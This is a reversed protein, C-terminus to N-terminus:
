GKKKLLKIFDNNKLINIYTILRDLLPEANKGFKRKVIQSIEYINRKGDIAQWVTSGIEDLDITMKEPTNFFKRVLKDVFSNRYVILVVNEGKIEWDVKESRIPVFELFNENKKRM